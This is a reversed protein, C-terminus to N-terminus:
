PSNPEKGELSHIYKKIRALEMMRRMNVLTSFLILAVLLVLVIKKDEIQKDVAGIMGETSSILRDYNRVTNDIDEPLLKAKNNHTWDALFRHSTLDARAISTQDKAAIDMAFIIYVIAAIAVIRAAVDLWRWGSSLVHAKWPSDLADRARLTAKGPPAGYLKTGV